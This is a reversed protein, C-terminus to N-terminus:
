GARLWALGEELLTRGTGAPRKGDETLGPFFEFIAAQGGCGSGLCRECGAGRRLEGPGLRSVIEGPLDKGDDGCPCHPCNLRLLRQSLIGRLCDGLLAGDVGMEGLRLLAEAATATHLTSLVLHGTLAARLAVQATERDRIEGILIKDPDHRLFARLIRPFSRGVSSDVAVQMAGELAYEVPDEVTLIKLDPGMVEGLAAHLSTTKGSGTPGTVLFLGAGAAVCERVASEIAEPLQLSRLNRFLNRRDLIRLVISEGWTTPLTSIRFDAGQGAFSLSFRGDQPHLRDTMDLNALMKLCVAVSGQFIKPIRRLPCLEGNIRLRVDMGGRGSEFHLDSAGMELARACLTKVLNEVLSMGAFGGPSPHRPERTGASESFACAWRWQFEEAPIELFTVGLGQLCSIEHAVAWHDRGAAIFFTPAEGEAPLIRYSRWWPVECSM